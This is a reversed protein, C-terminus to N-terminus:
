GEDRMGSGKEDETMAVREQIWGGHRVVGQVEVTRDGEAVVVGDLHRV